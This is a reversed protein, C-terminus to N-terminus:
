YSHLTFILILFANGIIFWVCLVRYNYTRAQFMAPLCFFFFTFLYPTCGVNILCFLPQVSKTRNVIEVVHHQARILVIFTLRRGGNQYKM